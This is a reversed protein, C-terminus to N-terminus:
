NYKPVFPRCYFCFILFFSVFFLAFSRKFNPKIPTFPCSPYSFFRSFNPKIPNSHTQKEQLLSNKVCFRPFNPKNQMISHIGIVREIAAPQLARHSRQRGFVNEVHRFGSRAANKVQRRPRSSKARGRLSGTMRIFERTMIPVRKIHYIQYNTLYNMTKLEYNTAEKLMSSIKAHIQQYSFTRNEAFGGGAPGRFPISSAVM